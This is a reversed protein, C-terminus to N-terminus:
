CSEGAVTELEKQHHKERELNEASLKALEARSVGPITIRPLLIKNTEINHSLTDAGIKAVVSISQCAHHHQTESNSWALGSLAIAVAIALVVFTRFTNRRPHTDTPM